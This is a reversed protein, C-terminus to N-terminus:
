PTVIKYTGNALIIDGDQLTYKNGTTTTLDFNILGTSTNFTFSEDLDFSQNRITLNNLGKLWQLDLSQYYTEGEFGSGTIPINLPYMILSGSGSPSPVTGGTGNNYIYISEQLKAGCLSYLYPNLLASNSSGQEVLHDFAYRLLYLAKAHVNNLGGGNFAAKKITDVQYLYQCIAAYGGVQTDTAM